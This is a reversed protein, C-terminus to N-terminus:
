LGEVGLIHLVSTAAEQVEASAQQGLLKMLRPIAGATTITAQNRTHGHALSGIADAAAQRVHASAASYQHGLLQVLPLIAGAASISTQNGAHNSALLRLAQAATTQMDRAHHPELLHVLAPIHGATAIAHSAALRAQTKLEMVAMRWVHEVPCGLMQVLPPVVGAVPQSRARYSALCRLGHDARAKVVSQTNPQLEHVLGEVEVSSPDALQTCALQLDAVQGHLMSHCVRLDLKRLKPCTKLPSLCVNGCSRAMWLEELKSCAALPSLDSVSGCGPMWLCRLQACSGVADISIISVCYSIDIVRLTAALNVSLAPMLGLPGWADGAKKLVFQERLSLSKLSTLSATALPALTSAANCVRLTLETIGPWCRLAATLEAASFGSGPSAVVKISGGVQRRM